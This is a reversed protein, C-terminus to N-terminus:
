GVVEAESLTALDPINEVRGIMLVEDNESARYLVGDIKFEHPLRHLRHIQYLEDDWEIRRVAFESDLAERVRFAEKVLCAARQYAGLKAKDQCAEQKKSRHIADYVERRHVPIDGPAEIALRVKDGRIDAVRIVVDDGILIEEDRHRSLVLAM